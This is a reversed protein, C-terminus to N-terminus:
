RRRARAPPRRGDLRQLARIARAVKDDDVEAAELADADVDATRGFPPRDPEKELGTDKGRPAAPGPRDPVPSRPASAASRGRVAQEVPMEGLRDRTALATHANAPRAIVSAFAEEADALGRADMVLALNRGRGRTM